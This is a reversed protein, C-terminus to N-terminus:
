ATKREEPERRSRWGNWRLSGPYSYIASIHHASFYFGSEMRYHNVGMVKKKMKRGVMKRGNFKWEAMLM